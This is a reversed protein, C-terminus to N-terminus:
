KNADFFVRIGGLRDPYEFFLTQIIHASPYTKDGYLCEFLM